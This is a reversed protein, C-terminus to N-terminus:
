WTARCWKTYRLGCAQVGRWRASCRASSKWGWSVPRPTSTAQSADLPHAGAWAGPGRSHRPAARRPPSRGGSRGGHGRLGGESGQALGPPDPQGHHKGYQARDHRCDRMRQRAVLGGGHHLYAGACAHGPHIRMAITLCRRALIGGHLGHLTRPAQPAHSGQKRGRSGPAPQPHCGPRLWRRHCPQGEETERKCGKRRGGPARRHVESSNFEYREAGEGHASSALKM